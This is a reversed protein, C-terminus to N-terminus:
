KPYNESSKIKSKARILAQLEEQEEKTFKFKDYPFSNVDFREVHEKGKGDELVVEIKTGRNNLYFDASRGTELKKGRIFLIAGGPMISDPLYDGSEIIREIEPIIQKIFFFPKLELAKFDFIELSKLFSLIEKKLYPKELFITKLDDVFSKSSYGFKPDNSSFKFPMDITEERSGASTSENVFDKFKIIKKMKENQFLETYTDYFV